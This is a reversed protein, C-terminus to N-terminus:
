MRCRRRLGQGAEGAQGDDQHQGHDGRTSALQAASSGQRASNAGSISKPMVMAM